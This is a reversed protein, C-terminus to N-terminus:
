PCEPLALLNNPHVGDSVTKLYEHGQETKAIIVDARVGAARTWFTWKGAKIGAIADVVSLKWHTGDQNVGGISHIREHASQRDTKNICLIQIDAAM